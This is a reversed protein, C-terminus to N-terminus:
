GGVMRLVEEKEYIVDYMFTANKGFNECEKARRNWEEDSYEDETLMFGGSGMDTSVTAYVRNLGHLIGLERFARCKTLIRLFQEPELRDTKGQPHTIQLVLLGNTMAAVSAISGQMMSVWKIGAQDYSGNLRRLQEDNLTLFPEPQNSYATTSPNM